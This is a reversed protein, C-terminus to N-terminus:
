YVIHTNNLDASGPCGTGSTTVTARVASGATVSLAAGTDRGLYCRTLERDWDPGSENTSSHRLEDRM